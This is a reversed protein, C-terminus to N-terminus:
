PPVVAYKIVTLLMIEIIKQNDHSNETRLNPQFQALDTLQVLPLSIILPAKQGRLCARPSLLDAVLTKTLLRKATLLLVRRRLRVSSDDPPISIKPLREGLDM